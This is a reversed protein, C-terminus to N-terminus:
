GRLRRLAADIVPRLYTQANHELDRTATRFAHYGKFRSRANRSSTGELWPGYIVGRDHVVAGNAVKDLTIQTEYYPTPHVIRDNLVGQVTALAHGALGATLDSVFEDTTRQLMYSFLPGTEVYDTM